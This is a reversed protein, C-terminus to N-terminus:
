KKGLLLTREPPKAIRNRICKFLIIRNLDCEVTGEGHYIEFQVKSSM